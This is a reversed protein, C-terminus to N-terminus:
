LPSGTNVNVNVICNKFMESSFVGVANKRKKGEIEANPQQAMHSIKMENIPKDDRETRQWRVRQRKMAGDTQSASFDESVM